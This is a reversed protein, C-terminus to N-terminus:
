NENWEKGLGCKQASSPPQRCKIGQHNLTLSGDKVQITQAIPRATIVWQGTSNAGLGTIEVQYAPNSGRPYNGTLGDARVRAYGGRGAALKRSELQRAINQMETMMDVRKTRVIYNQYSPYAIAVLIGLCFLVILLEIMTLGKQYKVM